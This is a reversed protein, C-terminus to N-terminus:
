KLEVQLHDPIKIKNKLLFIWNEKEKNFGNLTFSGIFAICLKKKHNKSKIIKVQNTYHALQKIEMNKIFKM